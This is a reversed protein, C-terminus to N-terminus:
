LKRAISIKLHTGYKNDIFRILLFSLAMGAFGILAAVIEIFWLSAILYGAFLFLIPVGFILLSVLTRGLPSINLQVRDNVQLPLDTVLEYKTPESQTFCLGQMKCGQCNKGREIEVTVCNGEVKTVIGSDEVPEELM